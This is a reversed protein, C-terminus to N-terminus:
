MLVIFKRHANTPRHDKIRNEYVEMRLVLASEGFKIYTQPIASYLVFLYATQAIKGKLYFHM